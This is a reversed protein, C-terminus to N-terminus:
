LRRCRNINSKVVTEHIQADYLQPAIGQLNTPSVLLPRLRQIGRVILGEEMDTKGALSVLLVIGM